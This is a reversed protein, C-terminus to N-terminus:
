PVDFAEPVVNPVLPTGRTVFSVGATTSVGVHLVEALPAPVGAPARWEVLFNAGVGTTDKTAVRVQYTEMPQLVIEQAVFDHVLHGQTNYYRVKHLSISERFSINHVSLTATVRQARGEGHYVHSYTPIYLVHHDGFEGMPSVEAGRPVVPPPAPASDRQEQTCGILMLTGLLTSLRVM